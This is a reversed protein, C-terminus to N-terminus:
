IKMSTGTLYKELVVSEEKAEKHCRINMNELSPSDDLSFLIYPRNRRHIHIKLFHYPCPFNQLHYSFLNRNSHELFKGRSDISANKVVSISKKIFNTYISPLNPVSTSVSKNMAHHAVKQVNKVFSLLMNANLIQPYSILSLFFAVEDLLFANKPHINNKFQILPRDEGYKSSLYVQMQRYQTYVSTDICPTLSPFVSLIFAKLHLMNTFLISPYIIHYSKYFSSFASLILYPIPKVINPYHQLLVHEVTSFFNVPINNGDIDFFLKVPVHPSIIEYLSNRKEKVKHFVVAPNMLLWIFCKRGNQSEEKSCLEKAFALTGSKTDLKIKMEEYQVLMDNTPICNYRIYQANAINILDESEAM